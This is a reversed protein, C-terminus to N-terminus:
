RVVTRAEDGLEVVRLLGGGTELITRSANGPAFCVVSDNGTACGVVANIAIFHTVVVADGPIALLGAVLEDRWSSWRGGLESWTGAMAKALWAGREALDDTPSPIEAVREDVVPEVGWRAALPAATELTRRLPSVVIPLPGLPDLADAAAEAQARGIDDLGPDLDADWSAAAQGHRVLVLRPM